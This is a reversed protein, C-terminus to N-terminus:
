FRINWKSSYDPSVSWRIAGPNQGYERTAVQMAVTEVAPGIQVAATVVKEVKLWGTQQQNVAADVRANKLRPTLTVVPTAM